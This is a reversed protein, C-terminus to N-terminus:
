SVLEALVRAEIKRLHEGVTGTSTNLADAIDAHTVRRPVEYYGLEVAATLVERQRETLKSVLDDREPDYENVDLLRVSITEPVNRAAERVRKETGALTVRLGEDTYASPHLALVNYEETLALLTIASGAAEIHTYTHFVDDGVAFVDHSLATPEATLLDDAIEPDGSLRSVVVATGDPLHGTYLLAGRMVAPHDMLVRDAPHFAGSESTVMLTFQRM